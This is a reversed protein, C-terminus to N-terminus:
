AEQEVEAIIAKLDDSKIPKHLLRLGNQDAEVLREPATDGTLLVATIQNGYRSKFQNIVRDGSEGDALRWDAIILDPLRTKGEFAQIASKGDTVAVVDHGWSGILEEMGSLVEPDDDITLVLRGPQAAARMEAVAPEPQKVAVEALPIEVTFATGKGEESEVSIVLGLLESLRGVISLGLGLGQQRNRGENAVQYFDQFISKVENAPIGQGTDFVQVRLAKSGRRCGLLVKGSETYRLANSLLNRLVREFLTRDTVIVQGSPVVARLELGKSKAQSVHEACLHEIIEGLDCPGLQPVVLGADLKSIDLLLNLLDDLAEVSREIKDVLGKTKEDLDRQALSAVFLTLAQLPQRLDHSAAALVKSKAQTAEEAMEKALQLERTREEVKIELDAHARRLSDTLGKNSAEYNRLGEVMEAFAAVMDRTERFASRADIEQSFDGEKLALAMNRLKVVPKSINRALTLGLAVALLSIALVVIINTLLVQKVDGLFDDEPMHIGILWPWDPNPFRVFIAHHTEGSVQFSTFTSSRSYNVGGADQLSQYAAKTVPEDLENIRTFRLGKVGKDAVRKIKEQDPFAIVDGNVNLVFASGNKGIKLDNLFGSIRDIEIDVGVVGKVDRNGDYVPSATTVGPKQSTFFIYPETWILKGSRSAKEYWPRVRPDYRDTHDVLRKVEKFEADRWILTAGARGMRETIIKTRYGGESVTNDRKVFYFEGKRTGFYIGAFQDYIQLQEFFYREMGEINDSRVVEHHALKETLSAASEAPDLFNETNGLVDESLNELIQRAQGILVRESAIYSSAIIFGSTVFLLLAVTAVLATRISM